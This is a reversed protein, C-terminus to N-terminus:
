IKKKKKKKKLNNILHTQKMASLLKKPISFILSAFYGANCILDVISFTVCVVESHFHEVTVSLLACQGRNSVPSAVPKANSPSHTPARLAEGGGQSAEGM